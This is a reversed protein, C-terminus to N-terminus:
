CHFNDYAQNPHYSNRMHVDTFLNCIVETISSKSPSKNVTSFRTRHDLVPFASVHGTVHNDATFLIFKIVSPLYIVVRGERKDFFLLYNPWPNKHLHHSFFVLM